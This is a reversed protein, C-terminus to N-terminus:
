LSICIVDFLIIIVSHQKSSTNINKKLTFIVIIVFPFTRCEDLNSGFFFFFNSGFNHLKNWEDGNHDKEFMKVVAVCLSGPVQCLYFSVIYCIPLFKIVILVPDNTGLFIFFLLILSICPVIFLLDAEVTSM